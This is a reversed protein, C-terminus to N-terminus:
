MVARDMQPGNGRFAMQVAKSHADRKSQMLADGMCMTAYLFKGRSV